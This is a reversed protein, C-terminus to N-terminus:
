GDDATFKSKYLCLNIVSKESEESSPIYYACKINPTPKPVLAIKHKYPLNDFRELLEETCGNQQVFMVYLNSKNIRAVRKNWSRKAEEFTSYHMFYIPIDGLMGVPYDMDSDIEKLNQELYFDLHELFRIYDKASFFLNVTPTNFREGLEHLIVGGVCNNCLLTFNKNTLRVKNERNLKWRLLKRYYKSIM